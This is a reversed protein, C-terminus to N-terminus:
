VIEGIFRWYLTNISKRKGGAFFMQNGAYYRERWEAEERDRVRYCKGVELKSRDM